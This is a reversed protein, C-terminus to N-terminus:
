VGRSLVWYNMFDEKMGVEAVCCNMSFELMHCTARLSVRANCRLVAERVANGKCVVCFRFPDGIFPISCGHEDGRLTPREM